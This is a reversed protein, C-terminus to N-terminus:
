EHLILSKIPSLIIHVEWVPPVTMKEKIVSRKKYNGKFKPVM